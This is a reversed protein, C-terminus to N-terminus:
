QPTCEPPGAGGRDDDDDDVDDDGDREEGGDGEEGGNGETDDLMDDLEM